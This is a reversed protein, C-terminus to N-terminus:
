DHKHDKGRHWGRSQLEEALEQRQAPTLVDAADALATLMRQSMRDVAQLKRQRLAELETRDITERTLSAVLDQRIGRKLDRVEQLDAVAAKVIAHVQGRQDDSAEVEDLM